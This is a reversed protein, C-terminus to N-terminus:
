DRLYIYPLTGVAIVDVKSGNGVRMTVEDRALSRKNRLEKRRPMAARRDALYKTRNRKHGKGAYYCVTEPKPGAKPKEPPAAVKKGGKKFNGKNPKGQKKFSTTKNVMLVQNEKKIELKNPIVIGLDGLKKAHGSMAFMHESVSSGEEMMRNFFQKSAEYSEVAAHTEFILKLERMMECPDHHEFRKRLEGRFHRSWDTFNSGNGKLKEKELQNFNISPAGHNGYETARVTDIFSRGRGNWRAASTHYIDVSDWRCSPTTTTTSFFEQLAEGLGLLFQSPPSTAPQSHSATMHEIHLALLSMTKLLPAREAHAMRRITPSSKSM